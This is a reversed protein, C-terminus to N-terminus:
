PVTSPMAQSTQQLAWNVRQFIAEKSSDSESQQSQAKERNCSIMTALVLLVSISYVLKQKM